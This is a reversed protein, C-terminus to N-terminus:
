ALGGGVAPPATTASPAPPSSPKPWIAIYTCIAHSREILLISKSKISDRGWVNKVLM